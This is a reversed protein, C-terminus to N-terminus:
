GPARCDPAAVAEAPGRWKSDEDDRAKATFATTWGPILALVRASTEGAPVTVIKTGAKYFKYVHRRGRLREICDM